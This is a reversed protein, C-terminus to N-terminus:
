LKSLAFPLFPFLYNLHFLPHVRPSLFYRALNLYPTALTVFLLFLDNQKISYPFLGLVLMVLFPVRQEARPNLFSGWLARGFM